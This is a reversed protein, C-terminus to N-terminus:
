VDPRLKNLNILLSVGYNYLFTYAYSHWLTFLATVRATDFGLWRVCCASTFVSGVSLPALNDSITIHFIVGHFISLRFYLKLENPM